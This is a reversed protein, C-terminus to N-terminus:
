PWYNYSTVGTLKIGVPQKPALNMHVVGPMQVFETVRPSAGGASTPNQYILARTQNTNLIAPLVFKFPIFGEMEGMTSAGAPYPPVIKEWNGGSKKVGYVTGDEIYTSTYGMYSRGDCTFNFGESLGEDTISGLRGARERTFQPVLQRFYELWVGDSAILCDIGMGYRDKSSHFRRLLSLLYPETLSQNAAVILSKYEPHVTVDVFDTSDREAGLLYDDDGGSGGKLWTNIGAIGTFNGTGKKINAPVIKDGATLTHGVGQRWTTPNTGTVVRVLNALEDVFDVIVNIRTLPTQNMEAAATDNSRCAGTHLASESSASTSSSLMDDYGAPYIDVRQGRYFRNPTYEATTFECYWTGTYDTHNTWATEASLVSAMAYSDSQSTYWFNCLQHAMNKAFGTMIPAIVQGIYAPTAEAQLEQWSLALNTHMSEIGFALRLSGPKPGELPDPWTQDIQQILSKDTWRTHTEGYLTFDDRATGGDIVGTYTGRLVRIAKWQRGLQSTPFVGQNSVFTDRWAPDLTPLIIDVDKNIIEEFVNSEIDFLNGTATPM